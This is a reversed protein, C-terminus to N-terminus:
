ITQIDDNLDDASRKIGAKAKDAEATRFEKFEESVANAKNKVNDVMRDKLGLLDDKGAHLRDKVSQYGDKVNDTLDLAKDSIRERTKKGSDPAFLVGLVAGVALGTLLAVVAGTTDTPRHSMSSLRSSILKKYNM